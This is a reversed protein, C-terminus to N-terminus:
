CYSLHAVTAVICMPRFSSPSSQGKRPSASPDGDLVIHGRGLDVEMGLPTKMWGATQGCYVHALFQTPATGKRRPSTPGWWVCLRRPRPRGGYWTANSDMWVNPWLPCQGFIPPSYGKPSPSSPGWRACHRRSQPRGGYWTTDQYMCGNPWLLCPGFFPSSHGKQPSLQTGM